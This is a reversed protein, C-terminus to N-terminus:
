DLPYPYAVPAGPEAQAAWRQLLKRIRAGESVQPHSAEIGGAREWSRIRKRAYDFATRFDGGRNLGEVMWARGFFTVNSTSGCGFSARDARAATMLLTDQSRLEPIFGGAYCASVVLVRNRIGADDLLSRLDEPILGDEVYPPFYVALEHYPTGHMALYLLLVDEQPDMRAGIGNLADRLNEYTALPWPRSGLSDRNNVLTIVGRAAFRRQMLTSFYDVENRFVDETGDGAFGLAYLDVVGDRQPPLADVLGHVLAVDRSALAEATPANSASAAALSLLLAFSGALAPM